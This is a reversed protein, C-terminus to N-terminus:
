LFIILLTNKVSIFLFNIHSCDLFSIYSNCQHLRDYIINTVFLLNLMHIVAICLLDTIPDRVGRIAAHKNVRIKRINRVAIRNLLTNVSQNPFPNQTANDPPYKFLRFEALEKPFIYRCVRIRNGFCQRSAIM